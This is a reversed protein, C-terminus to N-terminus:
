ARALYALAKSMSPFYSGPFYDSRSDDHESLPIVKITAAYDMGGIEVRHRNGDKTAVAKVHGGPTPEGGTVTWGNRKLKAIATTSKM